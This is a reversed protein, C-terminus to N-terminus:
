WGGFKRQIVFKKGDTLGFHLILRLQTEWYDAKSVPFLVKLNLADNRDIAAINADFSARRKREYGIWDKPFDHLIIGM